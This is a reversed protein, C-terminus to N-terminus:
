DHRLADVPSLQGARWAPLAGAILGALVAIGLAETLLPWHISASVLSATQPFTALLRLACWGFAIGLIGGGLGLTVAEFEIHTLVQWRKWGLARLIGIEQTREFVSMAMTNAIGLIGIILALSSTGWASAHALKVFQNDSAREAAPVARTGPLAAEIQAQAQKLYQDPAEGRPAPRLRVDITSVKGQMGTLLQLQSLPMILADAELTSAGHYVATVTFPTGQIELTDGTSKKLDQALMDGIMVEPQGDRFPRGSLIQLSDFQFADRTWGYALANVEPTLDMLNFISPSAQAVFPLDRLKAAGSEDLSTNLFTGRIVSIDTGSSSYIRM